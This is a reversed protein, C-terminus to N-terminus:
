TPIKLNTNYLLKQDLFVRVAHACYLEFPMLIKHSNWFYDQKEWSKVAVGLLGKIQFSVLFEPITFGLDVLINQAGFLYVVREHDRDLSGRGWKPLWNSNNQYTRSHVLSFLTTSNESLVFSFWKTVHFLFASVVCTTLTLSFKSIRKFMHCNFMFHHYYHTKKWEFHPFSLFM